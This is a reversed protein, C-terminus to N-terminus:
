RLRNSPAMTMTKRTSKVRPRSPTLVEPWSAAMRVKRTSRTKLTMTRWLLYLRLLYLWLLHLRKEAAESPDASRGM